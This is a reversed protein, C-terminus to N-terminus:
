ARENIPRLYGPFDKNTCGIKLSQDEWEHLDRQNVMQLPSGCKPCTGPSSSERRTASRIPSDM